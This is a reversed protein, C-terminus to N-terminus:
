PTMEFDVLKGKRWIKTQYLMQTLLSQKTTELQSNGRKFKLTLMKISYPVPNIGLMERRIYQDNCSTNRELTKTRNVLLSNFNKSIVAESPLKECKIMNGLLFM